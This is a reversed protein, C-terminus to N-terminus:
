KSLMAQPKNYEEVGPCVSNCHFKVKKRAVLCFELPCKVPSVNRTHARWMATRVKNQKFLHAVGSTLGRVADEKQKMMAPLNLTVGGCDIGRRAFDSQAM